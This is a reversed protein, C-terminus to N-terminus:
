IGLIKRWTNRGVIGDAGLGNNNQFKIVANKTGSGFVGDIGNTSYGLANLKEQLLKTIEGVAGYRLIPCGELTNTGPYGDVTQSSFGQNNCAKQLRAVWNDSQKEYEKVFESSIWGGHEGWFISFWGDCEYDIHVKEGYALIGLSKYGTGSGNRVKLGSKATVVGYEYPRSKIPTESPNTSVDEFSTNTIGAVIANAFNEANYKRMDEENDIFCCEILMSTMDTHRIVYLSSGDKIGRNTYGLSSINKLIAKAEDFDKAGYTLVEVGHAAKNFANLHISVYMYGGTSNAVNVRYSLSDMLSSCTDKSCITVSYGMSELKAKVKYGIERTCEQEKRGCGEAGTDYGNLTHGMDLLINKKM